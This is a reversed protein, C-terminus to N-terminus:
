NYKRGNWGLINSIKSSIRSSISTIGDTVKSGAASIGSTAAAGNDYMRKGIGYM